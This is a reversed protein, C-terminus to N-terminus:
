YGRHIRKLTTSSIGYSRAIADMRKVTTWPMARIMARDGEDRVKRRHGNGRDPFLHPNRVVLGCIVNRSVGAQKAIAALSLGGAWLSSLHAIFAPPHKPYRSM